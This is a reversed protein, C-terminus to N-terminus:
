RIRGLISRLTPIRSPSEQNDLADYIKNMRVITDLYISVEPSVNQLTPENRWDYGREQVIELTNQALPLHVKSSCYGHLYVVAGLEMDKVAVPMGLGALLAKEAERSYPADARETLTMKIVPLKKTNM